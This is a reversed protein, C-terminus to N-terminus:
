SPVHWTADRSEDLWVARGVFPPHRLDAPVATDGDALDAEVRCVAEVGRAGVVGRGRPHHQRRDVEAVVACATM